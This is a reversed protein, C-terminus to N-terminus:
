SVLANGLSFFTNPSGWTFLPVYSLIQSVDFLQLPQPLADAYILVNGLGTGSGGPGSFIGFGNIIAPQVASNLQFRCQSGLVGWSRDNQLSPGFWSPTVPVIGPLTIVGLDAYQTNVTVTIQNSYPLVKAGNLIGGAGIWESAAASLFAAVPQNM